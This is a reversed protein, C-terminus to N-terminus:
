GVAARLHPALERHCTNMQHPDGKLSGIGLSGDRAPAPPTAISAAPRSRNRGSPADDGVNDLFTASRFSSCIAPQPATFDSSATLTARRAASSCITSCRSSLGRRAATASSIPAVRWAAPSGFPMNDRLIRMEKGKELITTLANHAIDAEGCRRTSASLKARGIIAGPSRDIAANWGPLDHLYKQVIVYSGGAFAADEAGIYAADIATQETPNETGDVFRHSRRRPFLSLRPEDVPTVAGALRAM